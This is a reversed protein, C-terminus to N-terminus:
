RRGCGIVIERRVVYLICLASCIYNRLAFLQPLTTKLLAGVLYYVALLAGITGIGWGFAGHPDRLPAVMVGASQSIGSGIVQVVVLIGVIIWSYHLGGSHRFPMPPRPGQTPM